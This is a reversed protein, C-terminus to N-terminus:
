YHTSFYREVADEYDEDDQPEIRWMVWNIKRKTTALSNVCMIPKDEDEKWGLLWWIFNSIM